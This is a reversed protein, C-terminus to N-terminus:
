QPSQEFHQGRFDQPTFGTERSFFRSFYAPDQFSLEYGIEAISLHSFALLRKAELLIRARILASATQGSLKKCYRNFRAPTMKMRDAYFSVKQEARYNQELVERFESLSFASKCKMSRQIQDENNKFAEFLSLELFPKYVCRRNKEQEFEELMESVYFSVKKSQLPKLPVILNESQRIFYSLHDFRNQDNRDLYDGTFSLVAGHLNPKMEWGHVAYAPIFMLCPANFLRAGQDDFLSGGGKEVFLIQYLANHSHAPLRWEYRPLLKHFREIHFFDFDHSRNIEGYLHYSPIAAIKEQM